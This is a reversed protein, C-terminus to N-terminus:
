IHLVSGEALLGRGVHQEAIKRAAQEGVAGYWVGEPYVVVVPGSECQDLCDVKTLLVREYLGLDKLARRLEGRTERGGRALCDKHVCVLIHHTLQRLDTM